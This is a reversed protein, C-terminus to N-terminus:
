WDAVSGDDYHWLPNRWQLNGTARSEIKSEDVAVGLGPVEPIAVYGGAHEFFDPNSVYDLFNSGKQAYVEHHQDQLVANQTALGFHVAAAFAVPGVPCKTVVPTDFAEGMNAIKQLETIGGAHCISPQIIDVGGDRLVERFDWRSYLRQGTAIPVSTNRALDPLAHNYEPLLPEEVYMVNYREVLSLLQKAIARSTRGRFDVAIDVDSGVAERVKMLRQEATNVVESAQVKSPRVNMMMEIATYGEDVAEAASEAVEWPKDGTAWQCIHVRDRMAGGLLEYVPEDAAKGKIDWLAHDIGAIASMLIPGGRHHSGHYMHQWHREITRPDEGLLYDEILETVAAKVTEVRGEVIPEGWGAIGEDTKIKLFLWRPPVTYLEHGTIKMAPIIPAEVSLHPPAEM